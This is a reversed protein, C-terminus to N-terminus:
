WFLGSVQPTSKYVPMYVHTPNPYFQAAREFATVDPFPFKMQITDSGIKTVKIPKDNPFWGSFSNSGVKEDTEITFTTMFDDATLDKGDSWKMGSRIKFTFTTKDPSLKYSEAMYPIYENTIVDLVMLGGATLTFPLSPSERYTFPNLTKFDALNITRLVGGTQVEGAKNSSWAAPNVFPAAFAASSALLAALILTKKM